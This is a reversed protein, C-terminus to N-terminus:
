WTAVTRGTSTLHTGYTGFPDMVEFAARVDHLLTVRPLVTGAFHGNIRGAALEVFIPSENGAAM